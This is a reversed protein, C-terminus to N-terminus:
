RSPFLGIMIACTHFKVIVCLCQIGVKSNLPNIKVLKTCYTYADSYQQLKFCTETCKTLAVVKQEKDNYKSTYSLAQIYKDLAKSYQNKQSFTDGEENLLCSCIQAANLSILILILQIISLLAM